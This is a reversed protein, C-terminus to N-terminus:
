HDHLVECSHNRCRISLNIGVPNGESDRGSLEISMSEGNDKLDLLGFQQDKRLGLFGRKAVTGETYPGGKVRPYRDFPAAHFVPFGKEGPKRNSAYNSNTGDDAAVMHADGSLMLISKILGSSKILNAIETREYSYPEWGHESGPSDKTIWPVPNIWIVLPFDAASRLEDEM